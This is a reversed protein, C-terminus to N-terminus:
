AARSLRPRESGSRRASAPRDSRRRILPQLRPPESPADIEALAKFILASGLLLLVAAAIQIVLV